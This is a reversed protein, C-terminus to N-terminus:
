VLKSPEQSVSQAQAAAAQYQRKVGLIDQSRELVLAFAQMIPRYERNVTLWSGLLEPAFRVFSQILYGELARKEAEKEKTLISYDQLEQMRNVAGALETFQDMTLGAQQAPQTAQTTAADKTDTSM